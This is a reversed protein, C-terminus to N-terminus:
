KLYGLYDFKEFTHDNAIAVIITDAELPETPNLNPDLDSEKAHRTGIINLEYKQRVDLETLSKGIWSQPIQFNIMSIGHELYIISEIHHKLINSAVQKGSDREPTIVNTAGIGYLVEEHIKNKAKAIIAPVKMKKCHMIALVSSELNNGTAIVVTDCQDIGVSLLFDNDTMDGVAAKTVLNGIENVNAESTDIAIVDQDFQSLQRAVTRGFIGLGLVGVTKRKM